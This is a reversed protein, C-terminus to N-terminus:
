LGPVPPKLVMLVLAALPTLTAVLGWLEWARAMSRYRPWDFQSASAAASALKAIRRQLPAVWIMFVAGSITFLVLSWFIWGTGLIPWGGEIAGWIGTAIIVFVGPVTFIRDSRTIGEFTHGIVKPDGSREAHAKWFLGTIINGLFLVVALIHLMKVVLYM